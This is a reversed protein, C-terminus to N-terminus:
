GDASRPLLMRLLRSRVLEAMLPEPVRRTREIEDSAAIIAAKVNRAAEIPDPHAQRDMRWVKARCAVVLAPTMDVAGRIPWPDNTRSSSPDRALSQCCLLRISVM